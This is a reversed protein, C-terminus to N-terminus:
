SQNEQRKEEKQEDSKKEFLTGRHPDPETIKILTGGIDCVKGDLPLIKSKKAPDLGDFTHILSIKEFQATAVVIRDTARKLKFQRGIDSALESIGAHLPVRYIYPNELWEKIIKAQEDLSVGQTTLKNLHSVEAVSSESVVILLKGNEADKLFPAIKEYRGPTGQIADIIVCSDWLIKEYPIKKM